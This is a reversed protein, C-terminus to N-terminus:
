YYYYCYYYYQLQAHPLVLRPQLRSRSIPRERGGSDPTNGKALLLLGSPVRTQTVVGRWRHTLYFVWSSNDHRKIEDIETESFWNNRIITKQQDALRQESIDSESHHEIWLAHFLKRYERQSTESKFYCMLVERNESSTWQKRKKTIPRQTRTNEPPHESAQWDVQHWYGIQQTVRTM